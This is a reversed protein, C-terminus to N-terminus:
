LEIILFDWYNIRTSVIIKGAERVTEEDLNFDPKGVDWPTSCVTDLIQVFLLPHPHFL